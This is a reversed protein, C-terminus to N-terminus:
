RACELSTACEDVFDRAKGTRPDPTIGAVIEYDVVCATEPPVRRLEIDLRDIAPDGKFHDLM